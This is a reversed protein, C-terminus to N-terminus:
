VDRQHRQERAKKRSEHRLRALSLSAATRNHHVTLAMALSLERRSEGM